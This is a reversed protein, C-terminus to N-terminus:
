NFLHTPNTINIGSFSLNQIVMGAQTRRLVLKWFPTGAHEM